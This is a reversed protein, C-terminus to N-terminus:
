KLIINNIYSDLFIFFLKRKNECPGTVAFTNAGLSAQVLYLFLFWYFKFIEITKKINIQQKM